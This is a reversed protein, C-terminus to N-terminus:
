NNQRAWSAALDVVRDVDDENNFMHLSFRLVGRRITLQVNHDCLYLHLSQMALDDTGDHQGAGIEGVTVLGALHPGPAGGCVPLGLDLLGGALRHSLSLVRTEITEPGIKLMLALSPNVAAAAVFNYNGLDFRRAGPMLRWDDGGLAAEHAGEGLDVGFRALYAPTLREAWEHRCYLFGMGYLGLLGKQTSVALADINEAVVDTKMVGVSQVGDVLFLADRARCAAGLAAVDSRFGPAFSVSSVTLAKTQADMANIMRDVPMVGDVSAITRLEVGFRRAVHRWPYVNNPHELDLCLVVNDGARWDMAAIMANLGESVNKTIAIDHNEANILAAFQSRAGEIADFMAPKDGGEYLRADLMADVAARSERMMLGRAATNMYTSKATGPFRRRVDEFSIDDVGNDGM